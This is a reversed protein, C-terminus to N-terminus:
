TKNTKFNAKVVIVVIIYYVVYRIFHAMVLGETDYYKILYNSLVYFLILSILETIIFSKVLRKALFQHAIVLSLLRLFDGLLQWKFLREMGEFDPYIVAIIAYRFVYVLVMGIAFIPVITKYIHIVENKFEAENTIAAFKPLVYLTFIGASFVMYNKSIFLMATWYGAEEISIQDIVITRLDLEIFNILFTSVFSMLTFALLEKKYEIAFRLSKFNIYKKLVSAFIFILVSLQILPAILIAFIAGELNYYILGLILAMASLLYGIIDIKAYKKYESLGNIVANFVRNLGIFPTLVAFFYFVFRYDPSKFIYNSFYSAGFFLVTSTIISGVALFVFVTSFLQSLANNDNKKESIYKVVGNFVGLSSASTIMGTLNRVQGINAIGAEGVTVALFRQVFVSVILRITIVVANLSTIKLVTNNKILDKINM